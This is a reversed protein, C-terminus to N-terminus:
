PISITDIKTTVTASSSSSMTVRFEVNSGNIVGEFTGLMSGTAVASEEITTVTTGDHILLYRGVQYASGQTIQALISASRFSAKAFSGTSTASTSSVATETESVGGGGGSSGAISVDLTNTAPFYTISNGSGVFNLTNIGVNNAIVIGASQIGINFGSGATVIGSFNANGNSFIKATAGAGVDFGGYATVVGATRFNGNAYITAASGVNLATAADSTITTVGTQTIDHLYSQNATSIGQITSSVNVTATQGSASATVDTGTFNITKISGATGVNSGEEQVTIGQIDSAGATNVPAWNWGGTGNAVPVENAQGSDGNSQALKALYGATITAIGSINAGSNADLRGNVQLINGVTAIGAFAANGNLQLTTLGVTIGIGTTFLTHVNNHYLQVGGGDDATIYFKNSAQNNLELRDSEIRLDGTANNLITNNSKHLIQFDEGDGVSVRAQDGFKLAAVSQDFTINTSGAGAFVVDAGFNSAGDVDLVDLNATGDVDIDASLDISGTIGLTSGDFTLNAEGNLNVGSGGTIVRNDANNAISVQTPLNTLNSGDGYLTDGYINSFRTGDAGINYQSDTGPMINGRFTSVGSDPLNIANSQTAVANGMLAHASCQYHLVAPHNNENTATGIGIQTYAGSSGPTGGTTIEQSYSNAKDQELYFRLPHGSNTSHSQDFYYLKGPVLTLFPSQVGDLWYGNGSGQGFYRHDATKAAVTVAISVVTSSAAGVLRKFGGLNEGTTTVGTISLGAGVTLDKAINFRGVTDINFRTVNGNTTDQVFFQGGEVLARYDPNGDSENFQLIPTTSTIELRATTTIGSINVNSTVTAVGANISDLHGTGDIFLDKFKLSSSGLDRADDTSPVIDSDFRGTATITDGTANGLNIDGNLDTQGDVQLNDNVEVTGGSSDLTLNGSSTTIDNDADVGLRLNDIHAGGNADILGNFNASSTFTSVGSVNLRGVTAIGADVNDLHAIGDIHLDRWEKSTSGLDYTDDDDPTISSDVDASFVVNDTAADGLTITGGNFTTTGTVTLNGGINVNKAVGLGGDIKLAGTTASTSQTTDNIDVDGTIDVNGTVSLIDDVVVTGGASDLTLNGSATEIEGDNSGSAIVVEGIHGSSFPHSSDGLYAGEDSDPRIGTNVQLVGGITTIGAFAANGNHQITSLGVTIGIGTTQFIKVDNHYLEVAGNQTFTAQTEDLAANKIELLNSGIILSGTGTDSIASYGGSATTHYIEVGDSSSGFIAKANDDFILDDTSQDFTINAAAGAFVVDAGFNSAGDVDLVDLNATGDVDLDGNFDANGGLTLTTAMDVAGDIDVVDLNTTGDVDLNGNFDANGSLILDSEFTGIGSVLVGSLFTSVGAVQLTSAISVNTPDLDGSVTLTSGDFTLNASDELEGGTGALVVRQATLDQVAATRASVGGNADVLGEFTSIGTVSLAASTSNAVGITAIGTVTIDTAGIGGRAGDGVGIHLTYGPVTTAIGVKNLTSDGVLLNTNVEVGNKIVFNKNIAM